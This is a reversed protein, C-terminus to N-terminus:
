LVFDGESEGRGGVGGAARGAVAVSEWAPGNGTVYFRARWKGSAARFRRYILFGVTSLPPQRRYVTARPFPSMAVVSTDAHM